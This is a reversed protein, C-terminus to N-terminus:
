TVQESPLEQSASESTGCLDQCRKLLDPISPRYDSSEPSTM